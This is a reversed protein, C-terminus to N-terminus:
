VSAKVARRALLDLEQRWGETNGEFAGQRADASTALAAFGSEVVRVQTGGDREALWFEVLTGRGETPEEGAFASAWRYALYDTPRVDEVKIPFRGHKPHTVVLYEGEDVFTAGDDVGEGVWWGPQSVLEWVRDIGANIHIEREIKDQERM